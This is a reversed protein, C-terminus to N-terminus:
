TGRISVSASEGIALIPSPSPRPRRGSKRGIGLHENAEKSSPSTLEYHPRYYLLLRRRYLLIYHQVFYPSRLVAPPASPSSIAIDLQVLKSWSPNPCWMVIHM